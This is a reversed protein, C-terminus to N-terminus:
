TWPDQLGQELEDDSETELQLPGPFDARAQTLLRYNHRRKRKQANYRELCVVFLGVLLSVVIFLLGGSTEKNM